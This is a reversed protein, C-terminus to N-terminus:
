QEELFLSDLKSLDLMDNIMLTLNNTEKQIKKLQEDRKQKNDGTIDQIMECYGKIISLPTKLDHSVNAILEKKNKLTKVMYIINLIM